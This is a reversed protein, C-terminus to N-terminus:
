AGSADIIAQAEPPWTSGTVAYITAQDVTCNWQACNNVPRQVTSANYWLRAMTNNKAPLNAGGTMFFAWAAPSATCVNDHVAWQSCGNDLYYVAFVAQALPPSPTLSTLPPPAHRPAGLTINERVMDGTVYNNAMVSPFAPNEAGNVYVGGGDRLLRMVNSIRNYTISNNGM